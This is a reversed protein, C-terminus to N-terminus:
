GRARAKAFHRPRRHGLPELLFSRRAGLGLQAPQITSSHIQTRPERWHAAVTGASFLCRPLLMRARAGQDLSPNRYSHLPHDEGCTISRTPQGHASAIFAAAARGCTGRKIRGWQATSLVRARRCELPHYGGANDEGRERRVSSTISVLNRDAEIACNAAFMGTWIHQSRV